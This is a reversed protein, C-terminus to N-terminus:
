TLATQPGVSPWPPERAPGPTATARHRSQTPLQESGDQLQRFTTVWPPLCLTLDATPLALSALPALSAAAYFATGASPLWDAKLRARM